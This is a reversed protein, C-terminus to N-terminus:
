AAEKVEIKKPEPHAPKSITIRLLGKTMTAQIASEDVGQPLPIARYFVGYARETLHYNKDKSETEAKKEGRITLLGDDIAIEVDSRELGPLEATIEVDKDTEVVDMCPVLGILAQGSPGVSRTFDDFLREVERQLPGFLINPRLAVGRTTTPVLARLNMM